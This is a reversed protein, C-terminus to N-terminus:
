KYHTKLAIFAFILTIIYFMWDWVSVSQVICEISILQQVLTIIDFIFYFKFVSFYFDLLYERVPDVPTLMISTSILITTAPKNHM